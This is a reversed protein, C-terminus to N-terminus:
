IRCHVAHIMLRAPYSGIKQPPKRSDYHTLAVRLIICALYSFSMHLQFFYYIKRWLCIAPHWLRTFHKWIKCYISRLYIGAKVETQTVTKYELYLWCHVCPYFQLTLLIFSSSQNGFLPEPCGLQSYLSCRKNGKYSIQLSVTGILIHAWCVSLVHNCSSHWAAVVFCVKLCLYLIKDSFPPALHLKEQNQQFRGRSKMEYLRLWTFTFLQSVLALASLLLLETCSFICFDM